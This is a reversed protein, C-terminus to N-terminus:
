LKFQWRKNKSAFGKCTQRELSKRFDPVLLYWWMSPKKRPSAWGPKQQMRRTNKSTRSTNQGWDKRWYIFRMNQQIRSNQYVPRFQPSSIDMFVESNMWRSKGATVTCLLSGSANGAMCTWAWAWWFLILYNVESWLFSRNKVMCKMM